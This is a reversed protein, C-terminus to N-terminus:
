RGFSKTVNKGNKDIVSDITFGSKKFKKIAKKASALSHFVEKDSDTRNKYTIWFVDEASNREQLVEEVLNKFSLKDTRETEETETEEMM